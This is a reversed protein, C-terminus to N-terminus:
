AQVGFLSNESIFRRLLNMVLKSREYHKFSSYRLYLYLANVEDRNLYRSLYVALKHTNKAIHEAEIYLNYMEHRIGVDYDCDVMMKGDDMVVRGHNYKSRMLNEFYKRSREDREMVYKVPVKKSM